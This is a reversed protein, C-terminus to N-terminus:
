SKHHDVADMAVVVVFVVVVEEHIRKKVVPFMVSFQLQLPFSLVEELNTLKKTTM